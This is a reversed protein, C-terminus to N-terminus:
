TGEFAFPPDGRQKAGEDQDTERDVPEDDHSVAVKSLQSRALAIIELQAAPAGARRLSRRWATTSRGAAKELPRRGVLM